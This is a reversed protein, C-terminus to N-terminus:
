CELIVECIVSTNSHSKFSSLLSLLLPPSSL